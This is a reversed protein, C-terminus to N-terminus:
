RRGQDVLWLLCFNSELGKECSFRLFCINNINHRCRRCLQFPFLFHFRNTSKTIGREGWLVFFVVYGYWHLSSIHIYTEWIRPFFNCIMMTTQFHAVRCQITFVHFRSTRHYRGGGPSGRFCWRTWWFFFCLKQYIVRFVDNKKM